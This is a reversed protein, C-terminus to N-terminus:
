LSRKCILFSLFVSPFLRSRRRPKVNLFKGAHVPSGQPETNFFRDATWSVPTQDRSQSSGRSFPMALWELIRAVSFQMSLPAQHAVTWPTAFLLVRLWGFAQVWVPLGWPGWHCDCWTPVLQGINVGLHPTPPPSSPCCWMKELDM